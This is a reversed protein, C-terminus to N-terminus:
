EGRKGEEIPQQLWVLWCKSCDNGCCYESSPPCVSKDGLLKALGEDPMARVFDANTRIDPDFDVGYMHRLVACDSGRYTLATCNEVPCFDCGIM